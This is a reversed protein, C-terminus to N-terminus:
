PKITRTLRIQNKPLKNKMAEKLRGGAAKVDEKTETLDSAIKRGVSKRLPRNATDIGKGILEGFKATTKAANATSIATNAAGRGLARSASKLKSTKKAM